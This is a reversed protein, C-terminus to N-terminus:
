LINCTVTHQWNNEWPNRIRKEENGVPTEELEDLCEITGDLYDALRKRCHELRRQLGGLRIDQVDFGQPKNEKTWLIEFKEYYVKLAEICKDYDGLLARLADKDGSQYAARTKVGLEAKVSLVDCLAALTDFIYQYQGGNAARIMKASEAYQANCDEVVYIDQTGMFPDSYLLSKAKCERPSGDACFNPRDLVMFDDWNLGFLEKFEAKITGLDTIGQAARAAYLMGPLLAFFSCEKGNDGWMTFMMNDVNHERCSEVAPKTSDISFQNFPAPGNWSWIGGGFWIENNFQLHNELMDDYREKHTAYYDWYVLAVESPVSNKIEEPVTLKAAYYDGTLIRFFMDSWMMPELGYKKCLECVKELHAKMIDTRNIYGNKDLYQGRGLGHAEDMGIHIKKTAFCESLTAFIRDILAYTRDDGVLLINDIDMFERYCGWQRLADFHALTQICPICEIGREAAYRDIEKMEEKSYRGRFLGFYPEGDVEYTDEMYLFLCNYGIKAMIDIFHKMTPMNMVANRSLDAMIGLYKKDKSM